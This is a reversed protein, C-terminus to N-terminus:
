RLFNLRDIDELLLYMLTHGAAEASLRVQLGYQGTLVKLREQALGRPLCESELEQLNVDLWQDYVQARLIDETVPGEQISLLVFFWNFRM